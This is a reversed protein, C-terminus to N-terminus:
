NQLDYLDRHQLNHMGNKGDYIMMTDINKSFFGIGSGTNSSNGFRFRRIDTANRVDTVDGVKPLFNELLEDTM